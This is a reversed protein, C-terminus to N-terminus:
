QWKNPKGKIAKKIEKIENNIVKLFVDCSSFGHSISNDIKLVAVRDSDSKILLKMAKLTAIERKADRIILDQKQQETICDM